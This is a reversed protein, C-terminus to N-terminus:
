LEKIAFLFKKVYKKDFISKTFISIFLKLEYNTSILKFFSRIKYISLKIKVLDYLRDFANKHLKAILSLEVKKWM